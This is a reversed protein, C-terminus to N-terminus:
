AYFPNARMKEKARNETEGLGTVPTNVPEKKTACYVRKKSSHLHFNIDM